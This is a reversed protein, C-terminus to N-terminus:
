VGFGNLLKGKPYSPIQSNTACRATKISFDGNVTFGM